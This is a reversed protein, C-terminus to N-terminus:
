ERDRCSAASDIEISREENCHDASTASAIQSFGRVDGVRESEDEGGVNNVAIGLRRYVKCLIRIVNGSDVVCRVFEGM